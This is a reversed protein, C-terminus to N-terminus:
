KCDKNYYNVVEEIDRKKYEKDEIKKVLEPCDEFYESAAKIFNKSFLNGRDGLHTVLDDADKSVYYSTISSKAPGMNNAGRSLSTLYARYDLYLKVNGEEVLKMLRPLVYSKTKKFYYHAYTINTNFSGPEKEYMEISEIEESTYVKYKSKKDKRFKIRVGSTIIKAMGTLSTGDNFHLIAKEKQAAIPMVVLFVIILVLKNM